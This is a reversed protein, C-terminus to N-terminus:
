QLGINTGFSLHEKRGDLWQKWKFYRGCDMILTPESQFIEFDRFLLFRQYKNKNEEYRRTHTLNPLLSQSAGHVRM